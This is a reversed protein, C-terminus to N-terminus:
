IYEERQEEFDSPVFAGGARGEIAAIVSDLEELSDFGISVVGKGERYRIEVPLNLTNQLSEELLAIEEDKEVPKMPKRPTKTITDRVKDVSSPRKEDQVRKELDRVSLKQSLAEKALETPNEASLLARAHGATILGQELMDCVPKPLNLLRLTNTVHARSKGMRKALQEQTYNHEDILRRYAMGEEIVNLDERQVNEIIATELKRVDDEDRLIAQIHTLGAERCARWRREGAIISYKGGNKGPAVVIPQILGNEKISGALEKIREANFKKRPQSDGPEIDELALSLISASASAGEGARSKNDRESLERAFEATDSADDDFLASLGKGLGTNKRKM